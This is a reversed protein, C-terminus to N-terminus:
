GEVRAHRAPVALRLVDAMSGAYRDAVARALEAVAPSLVSEASVVRDLRSLRHESGAVRELVYGGVVKGAFRARVRVGPQASDAMSAPVLYDFPRDLHALSVDLAVRAVPLVAAVGEPPVPRARRVTARVLALQEDRPSETV